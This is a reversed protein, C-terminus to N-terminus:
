TRDSGTYKWGYLTGSFTHATTTSDNFFELIIVDEPQLRHRYAIGSKGGQSGCVASFPVPQRTIVTGSATSIRVRGPWTPAILQIRDLRFPFDRELSIAVTGSKGPAVEVSAFGYSEFFRAPYRSSREVEELSRLRGGPGRVPSAQGDRPWRGFWEGRNM